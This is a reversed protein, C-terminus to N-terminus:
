SSLQPATQDSRVTMVRRLHSELNAIEMGNSPIHTSLVQPSAVITSRVNTPSRDRALWRREFRGSQKPRDLFQEAAEIAPVADNRFQSEQAVNGELNAYLCVNILPGHVPSPLAGLSAELSEVGGVRWFGSFGSVRESLM